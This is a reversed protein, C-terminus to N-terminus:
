SRERDKGFDSCLRCGAVAHPSSNRRGSASGGTRRRSCPRSCPACSTSPSEMEPWAALVVMAEIARMMQPSFLEDDEDNQVAERSAPLRARLGEALRKGLGEDRTAFAM